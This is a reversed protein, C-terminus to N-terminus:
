QCTLPAPPNVEARPAYGTGSTHREIFRLWSGDSVMQELALNIHECLEHSDNPLGIGLPEASFPAGVVRVKGFLEETAAFGALILDDTSMADVQGNVLMTACESLRDRGVITASNGLKDRLRQISITGNASCVTHGALDDVSAITTDDALVMLDQGAVIYPGAFDILPLREDLITYTAVIMDVEGDALLRERQPSVAEVWEIAYPSHGLKYAIYTAVDVDFGTPHGDVMYGVGPQDFKIGIRITPEVSTDVDGSSGCAGLLAAVAVATLAQRTNTPM